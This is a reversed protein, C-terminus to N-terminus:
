PVLELSTINEIRGPTGGSHSSHFTGEIACRKLQFPMLNHKNPDLDLRVHSEPAGHHYDPEAQYLAIDGVMPELLFGKMLVQAGDFADPSLLLQSVTAEKPVHSAAPRNTCSVILCIGVLGLYPLARM